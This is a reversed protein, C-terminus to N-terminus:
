PNVMGADDTDNRSSRYKRMVLQMGGGAAHSYEVTCMVSRIIHVGLGGPRVDELDRGRISELPVQKGYDRITIEAAEGRQRDRIMRLRFDIKLGPRGEYGHKIVNCLAEDIALVLDAVAEASWAHRVCWDRVAERVNPLLAPDSTLELELGNPEKM